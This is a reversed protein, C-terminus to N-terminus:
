NKEAEGDAKEADDKGIGSFRLIKRVLFEALDNSFDAMAAHDTESFIQRGESDVLGSTIISFSASDTVESKAAERFRSVDAVSLKKIHLGDVGYESLDVPETRRSASLGSLIQHKDM